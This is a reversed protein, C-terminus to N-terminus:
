SIVWGKLENQKTKTKINNQNYETKSGLKINKPSKNKIECRKYMICGGYIVELQKYGFHEKYSVYHHMYIIREKSLLNKSLCAINTKGLMDFDFYFEM